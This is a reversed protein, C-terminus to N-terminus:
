LMSFLPPFKILNHSSHGFTKRPVPSAPLMLSTANNINRVLLKRSNALNTLNFVPVHLDLWYNCVQVVV